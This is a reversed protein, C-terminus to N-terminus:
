VPTKIPVCVQQPTPSFAVILGALLAGLGMMASVEGRGGGLGFLAGAIAPSLAAGIRGIGMVFGAGTARMQAPFTEAVMTYLGAMCSFQCAGAVAAVLVLLPLSAPTYGFVAVAIGFGVMAAALLPRLGVRGAAVGFGIAAVVGAFNATASVSTGISPSFGAGVVLQPLWSLFYYITTIFLLNIATIRLTAGLQRRGIIARYAAPAPPPPPPPPLGDVAEHGYRSLLANVKTFTRDDRRALLFAMPEPLWWLVLPLLVLSVAAGFLFVARWDFWHLLGAAVFGGFMGGLPYGNTMAAMAVTRRRLNSFEVALPTIIPVLAGIGFGTLVRLAALVGIKHAFASALMGIAMLSLSAIVIKRRGVLDALPALLLSGLAMGALSSSLVLGLAAKGLGWEAAIGPAAFTVSLVDYGDLASLVVTLAVAVIQARSMPAVDLLHRPDRLPRTSM